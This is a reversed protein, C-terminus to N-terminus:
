APRAQEHNSIVAELRTLEALERQHRIAPALPDNTIERLRTIQQRIEAIDADTRAINPCQPRCDSTDPTFRKSDQDTRM